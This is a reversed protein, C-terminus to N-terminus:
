VKPKIFANYLNYFTVGQVYFSINGLTIPLMSRTVHPVLPYYLKFSNIKKERVVMFNKGVSWDVLSTNTCVVVMFDVRAIRARTVAVLANLGAGLIACCCDM